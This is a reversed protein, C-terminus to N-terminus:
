ILSKAPRHHLYLNTTCSTQMLILAELHMCVIHKNAESNRVLLM